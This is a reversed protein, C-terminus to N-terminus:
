FIQLSHVILINPLIFWIVKLRTIEKIFFSFLSLWLFIMMTLLSISTPSLILLVQIITNIRSEMPHNNTIFRKIISIFFEVIYLFFSFLLLYILLIILNLSNLVLLLFYSNIIYRLCLTCWHSFPILSSSVLGNLILLWTSLSTSCWVEWSIMPLISWLTIFLIFRKVFWKVLGYWWMTFWWWSFLAFFNM